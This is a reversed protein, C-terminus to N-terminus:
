CHFHMTVILRAENLLHLKVVLRVEKLEEHKQQQLRQLFDLLIEMNTEAEEQKAKRKKEGLLSLLSDLEKVSVEAGQSYRFIENTCTISIQRKTCMM